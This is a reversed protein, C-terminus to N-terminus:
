LDPKPSPVPEANAHNVQAIEAATLNDSQPVRTDDTTAAAPGSMVVPSNDSGSCGAL